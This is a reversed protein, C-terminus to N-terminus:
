SRVTERRESAIVRSAASFMMPEYGMSELKRCFRRNDAPTEPFGIERIVQRLLDIRQDLDMAKTNAIRTKITEIEELRDGSVQRMNHGDNEYTVVKAAFQARADDETLEGLNGGCGDGRYSWFAVRVGHQNTSDLRHLEMWYKKGRTEFRAVLM